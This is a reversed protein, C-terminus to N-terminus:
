SAASQWRKRSSAIERADTVVCFVVILTSPRHRLASDGKSKIGLAMIRLALLREVAPGLYRMGPRVPRCRVGGDGWM